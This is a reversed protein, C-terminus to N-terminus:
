SERGSVCNIYCEGITWYELNSHINVYVQYIGDDNEKILFFVSPILLYTFVSTTLFYVMPRESLFLKILLALIPTCCALFMIRVVVIVSMAPGPMNVLAGISVSAVADSIVLICTYLLIRNMAM